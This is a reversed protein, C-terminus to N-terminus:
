ENICQRIELLSGPSIPNPYNYELSDIKLYENMSANDSGLCKFNQLKKFSNIATVKPRFRLKLGVAQIVLGSGSNHMKLWIM